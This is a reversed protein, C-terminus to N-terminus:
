LLVVSILHTQTQFIFVSVLVSFSKSLKWTNTDLSKSLVIYFIYWFTWQIKVFLVTYNIYDLDEFIALIFLIKYSGIKFNFM